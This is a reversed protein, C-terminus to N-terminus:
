RVCRVRYSNTLDTWGSSGFSFNVIWAITSNGSFLTSSWFVASPASPFSFPDIAPNARTRDALTLLEAVTPLRWGSTFGGLSLGVCYTTAQPHTYSSGSVTQQWLLGTRHDRVTGNAVTYRGPPADARAHDLSSACCLAALLVASLRVVHLTRSRTSATKHDSM